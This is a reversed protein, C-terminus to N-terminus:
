RLVALAFTPRSTLAAIASPYKDSWDLNRDAVSSARPWGSAM